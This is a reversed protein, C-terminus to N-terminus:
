LQGMNMFPDWNAAWNQGIKAQKYHYSTANM